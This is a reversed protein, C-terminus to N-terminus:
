PYRHSESAAHDVCPFPSQLNSRFGDMTQVQAILSQSKGCSVHESFPLTLMIQPHLKPGRIHFLHGHSVQVPGLSPDTVQVLKLQILTAELNRVVLKAVMVMLIVSPPTVTAFSKPDSLM